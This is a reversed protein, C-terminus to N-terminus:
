KSYLGKLNLYSKTEMLVEEIESQEGKHVISTIQISLTEDEYILAILDFIIDGSDVHINGFNTSPAFPYIKPPNDNRMQSISYLKADECNMIEDYIGIKKFNDEYKHLNSGLSKVEFGDLIIEFDGHKCLIIFAHVDKGPKLGKNIFKLGYNLHKTQLIPKSVEIFIRPLNKHAVLSMFKNLSIKPSEDGRRIYSYDTVASYYVCAQDERKIEVLFVNNDDDKEIDIVELKFDSIYAPLSKINDFISSRLSERTKLPNLKKNVGVIKVANKAKDEAIGIVLLGKGMTSNLFSVLPKLIIEKRENESLQDSITKFELELSENQGIIHNEIDKITIGSNKDFFRQIIEM